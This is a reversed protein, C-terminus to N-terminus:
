LVWSFVVLDFQSAGYRLKEAHGVHYAIRRAYSAPMSRKAARVRRPDPDIAEIHSAGLAALRLTLRGEGCGVELLRKGKWTTAKQLARIENGAPDMRLTM